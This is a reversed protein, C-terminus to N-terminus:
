ICKLLWELITKLVLILFTKKLYFFILWKSINLFISLFGNYHKVCFCKILLKFFIYIKLSSVEMFIIVPFM